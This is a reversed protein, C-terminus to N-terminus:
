LVKTIYDSKLNKTQVIKADNQLTGHYGGVSDIIGNSGNSDGDGMKWWSVISSSASFEDMNKIRGSDTVNYLEQVEELSLEKNFVCTDAIYREFDNGIGGAANAGIRLPSTTNIRGNYGTSGPTTTGRLIGNIYIKIGAATQSGDYTFVVLSWVNLPMAGIATDKPLVQLNSGSGDYIRVQVQGNTHGFFWDSPVGNGSNKAIFAGQSNPTSSRNAWASVSFPADEGPQSGVFSFVDHDGVEIYDDVGDFEIAKTSMPAFVRGTPIGWIKKLSRETGGQEIIISNPVRM